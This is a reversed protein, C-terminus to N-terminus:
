LYTYISQLLLLCTIMFIQLRRPKKITDHHFPYPKRITDHHRSILKMENQHCFDSLTGSGVGERPSDSICPHSYTHVPSMHFIIHQLPYPTRITDHHRSILKMENQHCFDSLTRSGVGERPPDSIRPHSYTHVPSMHFFLITTWPLLIHAEM